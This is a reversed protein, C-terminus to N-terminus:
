PFSTDSSSGAVTKFTIASSNDGRRVIINWFLKSVPHTGFSQLSCDDRSNEILSFLELGATVSRGGKGAQAALDLFMYYGAIDKVTKVFVGDKCVVLKTKSCCSVILGLNKCESM